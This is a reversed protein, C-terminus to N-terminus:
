WEDICVCILFNLSERCFGFIDRTHCICRQISHETLQIQPIVSVFSFFRLPQSHMNPQSCIRCLIYIANHYIPLPKISPFPHQFRSSNDWFRANYQLLANNSSIESM